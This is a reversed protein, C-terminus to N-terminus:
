PWGVRDFIQVALPQNEGLAAVALDDERFEGLSAIPGAPAAGVVIPYENNGLAFGTQVDDRLLYEILKQANEANPAHVAVGAGSINVHTGFGDQDPHLVGIRDGIAAKEADDTGIFRAVYYSNVIAVRCLGAAVAEIQATDNGQPRRAFNGAVGRAWAEAADEGNHAIIAALLSQNYINSSSRVCIMGEYAPDALDAYDALGEPLGEERNYVIVRARKALGFWKGEPHRFQAPVRAELEANDLGRLLGRQDARWLIGADATIFLDAPSTEGEQALREILADGGAEIVNVAVGTEETFADFLAIDSDYHRGSYVNVEGADQVGAGDEEGGGGCAALLLAAGSLVFGFVARM